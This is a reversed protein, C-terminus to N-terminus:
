SQFRSEMREFDMSDSDKIRGGCGDGESRPILRDPRLRQMGGLQFEVQLSQGRFRVASVYFEQLGQM